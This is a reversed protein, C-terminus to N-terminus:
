YFVFDIMYINFSFMGQVDTYSARRDGEEQNQLRIKTTLWNQKKNALM